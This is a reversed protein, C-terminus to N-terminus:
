ACLVMAFLNFFSHTPQSLIGETYQLSQLRNLYTANVINRSLLTKFRELQHHKGHIFTKVQYDKVNCENLVNFTHFVADDLKDVTFTNHLKLQGKEYFSILINDNNLRVFCRDEKNPPLFHQYAILLCSPAHFFHSDKLLSLFMNNTGKRLSYVVQLNNPLINQAYCMEDDTLEFIAQLYILTDKPSFFDNPVLTFKNSELGIYVKEAKQIEVTDLIDQVDKRNLNGSTKEYTALLLVNDHAVSSVAIEIFTKGLWIFTHFAQKDLLQFETDQISLIKKM